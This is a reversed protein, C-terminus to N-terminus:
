RCLIVTGGPNRLQNLKNQYKDIMTQIQEYSSFTVTIDGAQLSGRGAKNNLADYLKALIAQYAAIQEAKTTASAPNTM